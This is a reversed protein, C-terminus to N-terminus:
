KRKGSKTGVTKAASTPMRTAPKAARAKAAKAAPKVAKQAAVPAAAPAKFANGAPMPMKLDSLASSWASRAGEAIKKSANMATDFPTAAAKARPKPTATLARAPARAAPSTRVRKAVSQAVKQSVHKTMQGASKLAGKALSSAVNKSADIATQKAADQMATSAIQQFQQTLAGWWQLPDVVGAPAATPAPAPPAAHTDPPSAPNALDAYPSAAAAEEAAPTKLKFASALEGISFNMGKLTALTMKQVELAQITAKLALANQDLWFQVAKLDTIRKDLEEVSLTPAIWSGIQPLQPMSPLNKMASSAAGKGLSQLFDFGPVLKSFNFASTDDSM